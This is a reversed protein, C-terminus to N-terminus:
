DTYLTTSRVNVYQLLTNASIVIEICGSFYKWAVLLISKVPNEHHRPNPSATSTRVRIHIYRINESAFYVDVALSIIELYSRIANFRYSHFLAFINAIRVISFKTLFYDNVYYISVFSM